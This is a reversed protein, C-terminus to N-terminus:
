NAWKTSVCEYYKNKGIETDRIECDDPFLKNENDKWDATVCRFMNRYDNRNRISIKSCFSQAICGEDIRGDCDDDKGNCVEKAGPNINKNNDDCDSGQKESCGKPVCNKTNCIGTPKKSKYGDKDKDCYYSRAASTLYKITCEHEGPSVSGEITVTTDNLLICPYTAGIINSLGLPLFEGPMVLIDARVIMSSIIILFFNLLFIKKNV